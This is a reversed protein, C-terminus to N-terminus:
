DDKNSTYSIEELIKSLRNSPISGLLLTLKDMELEETNSKLRYNHIDSSIKANLSALDKYMVFATKVRSELEDPDLGLVAQESFLSDFADEEIFKRLKGMLKYSSMINRTLGYHMKAMSNSVYGNLPDSPLGDVGDFWNALDQDIDGSGPNGTSVSSSSNNSLKKALEHIESMKSNAEDSDDENNTSKQSQTTDLSPSANLIDLLDQDKSINENNDM